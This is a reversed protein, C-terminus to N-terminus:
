LRPCLCLSLTIQNWKSCNLAGPIWNFPAIIKKKKKGLVEADEEKNGTNWTHQRAALMFMIFALRHISEDLAGCMLMLPNLTVASSLLM